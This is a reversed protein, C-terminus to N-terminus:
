PDRSFSKLLEKAGPYDSDIELVTNLARRTEKPQNLERYAQALMWHADADLVDIQIAQNAWKVTAPYDKAALALQALKKRVTFDDSDQEALEALVGSLKQDDGSLLYVRALAKRWVNNQPDHKAALLYLREAEDYKQAKIRLGALLTVLKEDPAAEDLAANLTEVAQDEDGVLLHLRAIVYSAQQQKPASELAKRALQRAQPYARREFHAVALRAALDANGPDAQQARVLEAFSLEEPKQSVSLGAVIRTVYELYGQEFDAQEVDFARRLAARTNPNERYAALLKALADEGYAALMYEAYLESQCYAMQWGDSSQPRIFGLNINDLNFLSDNAVREALLRNWSEPRPYGENLTALAETYWHPINFDTQQLNLVHVFEHKLVRAWNFKEPMDNPSAMAVMKGACAGVTGIYPLGVMRASFWGHARTNRAQNFIEFLSKGQPEFAFQKCLTPYVENELYDAAYRALVKDKEADFKIVFHETELTQYGDLVELVKLTNSVRLHFPDIEFAADLLKQAQPEDGLRMYMMGLSAQPGILQPLREIAQQFFHEAETFKRREELRTGITFFFVGSHPNRSVVEDHLKQFRSDPRGPRYGDLVIYAAALRGLTEESVPNLKLAQELVQAADEVKFDAMLWDSKFQWASRLKPNLQLARDISRKAEDLNYGQLALEAAAAHLEAAHPNIALAANLERTAEAENYKELYLRAAEYHAPWYREDEDLADPLLENVLFTFQDSLRNWRAFQAAALAILRLDDPDSVEERNYYDVFWKYSADASQLDGTVRAIEATIWRALLSNEDLKLAAAAQEKARPYDGADFALRALEAPFHADEPHKATASTLTQRVEDLLGAALQCHAVGLASAAPQKDALAKYAETAEEYQGSLYMRRADDLEDARALGVGAVISFVIAAALSSAIRRPVLSM